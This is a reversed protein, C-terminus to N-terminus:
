AGSPPRRPPLPNSSVYSFWSGVYLIVFAGALRKVLAGGSNRALIPALPYVALSM